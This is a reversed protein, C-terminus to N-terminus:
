LAQGAEVLRIQQVIAMLSSQADPLTQLAVMFVCIALSRVATVIARRTTSAPM